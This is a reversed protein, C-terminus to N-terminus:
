GGSRGDRRAYDMARRRLEVLESVVEEECSKALGLGALFGYQQTDNGFHDFCAYRTRAQKAAEPDIKELYRLVAEMSAHLSYLDLGYFGIKTAQPSLEDNYARLWELFEVLVTNRWMWTPFRRFDALAEIADTDDSL